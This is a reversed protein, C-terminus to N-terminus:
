ISNRWSLMFDSIGGVNNVDEFHFLLSWLNQVFGILVKFVFMIICVDKLLNHKKRNLKRETFIALFNNAFSLFNWLMAHFVAYDNDSGYSHAECVTFSCLVHWDTNTTSVRWYKSISLQFSCTEACLLVIKIFCLLCWWGEPEGVATPHSETWDLMTM